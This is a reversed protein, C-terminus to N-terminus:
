PAIVAKMAPTIKKIEKLRFCILAYIRVKLICYSQIRGHNTIMTGILYCVAYM